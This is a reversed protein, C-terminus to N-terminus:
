MLCREVGVEEEEAAEAAADGFSPVSEISAMAVEGGRM